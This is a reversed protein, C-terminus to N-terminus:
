HERDHSQARDWQRSLQEMMRKEFEDAKRQEAQEAELPSEKIPPGHRLECILCSRGNSGLRGDETPFLCKMWSQQTTLNVQVNKVITATYLRSM